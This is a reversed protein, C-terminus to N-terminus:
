RLAITRQLTVFAGRSGAVHLPVREGRAWQEAIAHLAQKLPVLGEMAVANIADIRDGSGLGLASLWRRNSPTDGVALWVGDLQTGHPTEKEHVASSFRNSVELITEHEDDLWQLAGRVAAIAETTDLTITRDSLVPPVAQYTLSQTEGDRVVDLQFRDGSALAERLRQGASVTGDVPVGAIQMVADGPALQLVRLLPMGAPLRNAIEPAAVYQADLATALREFLLTQEPAALLVTTSAAPRPARPQGLAGSRTAMAQAVLGDDEAWPLARWCAIVGAGQTTILDEGNPLWQAIGQPGPQGQLRLLREGSQTNWLWHNGDWSTTLLRKGDAHLQARTVAAGHGSFTHLLRGSATDWLRAQRDECATVLRSGTADFAAAHVPADHALAHLLAGSAADWVRAEGDEGATLLHKGAPDFTVSRVAGIHADWGRLLTRADPDWLRLVGQEDGAALVRGDPAFALGHHFQDHEECLGEFTGDASLLAISYGDMAAAIRAGDPSVAVADAGRSVRTAWAHLPAGTAVETLRLVGQMDLSALRDGATSTALATVVGTHRALVQRHPSQRADWVRAVGDFGGGLIRQGQGDWALSTVAGDFLVADHLLTGHATDRLEYRGSGMGVAYVDGAPSFAASRAPASLSATHLRTGSQSDYVQVGGAVDGTLLRTGDPSWRVLFLDATGAELPRPEANGALDWVRCTGDDLYAIQTGQPNLRVRIGHANLVPAATGPRWAYVREDASWAIVEGERGLVADMLELSPATWQQKEAGTAADWLRVTGDSAATVLTHGEPGPTVQNVSARHGVLQVREGLEPLGLIRVTGDSLAVNVSDGAPNLSMDRIAGMGFGAEARAGEANEWLRVTGDGSMTLMGGDPTYAVELVSATHGALTLLAENGQAQLWGWEWNRQRPRTAALTEGAGRRDASRVLSDALRIQALYAAEEAALRQAKERDRAVYISAYAYVAIALSVVAAAAATHVMPKNKRYYRAALDKFSYTYAKVLLGEQFREIEAALAQADAYRDEPAHAMAKTCIGALEPPAEPAVEAVPQPTEYQVQHLLEKVSKGPFPLTGTLMEYLVVGLGYVDSPKGIAELRGAAQEPAMYQPTGIASGYATSKWSEDGAAIQRPVARIEDALPDDERLLKAIGWDLVVTEGFAGVMVNAPKIDRHIVGNEHAYAIAQCLDLFHPLLGLRDQLSNCADIAAALTRGRVLKMTYYLSGDWRRGLEYVPVISPHELQATIRGEQLFRAALRTVYRVPSDGGRTTGESDPLLEKLAVDRGTTTDHVLLIRGMGGRAHQSIHSYRGPVEEVISGPLAGLMALHEEPMPSTEAAWGAAPLTVIDGLVAAGGALRLAEDLDGGAAALFESALRAYLHLDAVSGLGSHALLQAASWHPANEAQARLASITSAEQPHLRLFLALLVIDRPGKM